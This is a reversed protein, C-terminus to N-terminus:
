TAVPPDLRDAVALFAEILDRADFQASRHGEDVEREIANAVEHLADVLRNLMQNENM